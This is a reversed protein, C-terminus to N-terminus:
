YSNRLVGFSYFKKTKSLNRYSSSLTMEIKVGKSTGNDATRFVLNDVSAENHTLAGAHIGNEKVKLTNGDLYFESTTTANKVTLRGPNADFVSNSIDIYDSAKIERTMRELSTIASNNINRSLKLDNYSKSSSLLINIVLTMMAAIIAIYVLLEILSFGAKKSHQFKIM